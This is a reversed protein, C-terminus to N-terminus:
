EIIRRVTLIPSRDLECYVVGWRHGRAEICQGDGIYIGVHGCVGTGNNDWCVIDGPQIDEVDIEQGVDCLDRSNHPLSIGILDYCYVVLGSCDLGDRDSGCSKYPHGLMSIAANVISEQNVGTIFPEFDEEDGNSNCEDIIRSTEWYKGSSEEKDMALYETEICEIDDDYEAPTVSVIPNIEIEVPAPTIVLQYEATEREELMVENVIAGVAAIAFCFFVMLYTKYRNFFDKM